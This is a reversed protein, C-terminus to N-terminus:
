GLHLLSAQIKIPYMQFSIFTQSYKGIVLNMKIWDNCEPIKRKMSRLKIGKNKSLYTAAIGEALVAKGISRLADILKKWSSSVDSELWSTILDWKCDEVQGRNNADIEKIKSAEIELQTGLSKWNVVDMIANLINKPTFTPDAIFCLDCHVTTVYCLRFQDICPIHSFLHLSKM